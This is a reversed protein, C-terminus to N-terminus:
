SDVEALGVFVYTHNAKAYARANELVGQVGYIASAVGSANTMTTFAPVILVCLIAIVGIVILLELLTFAGVDGLRLVVARCLGRVSEPSRKASTLTRFDSTRYIAYLTGAHHPKLCESKPGRIASM